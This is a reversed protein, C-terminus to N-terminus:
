NILALSTMLVTDEDSPVASKILLSYPPALLPVGVHPCLLFAAMKLSLLSAELSVLGASM